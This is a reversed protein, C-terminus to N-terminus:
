GDMRGAIILVDSQNAHAPPTSINEQIPGGAAALLADFVPHLLYEEGPKTTVSIGSTEVDAWSATLPVNAVDWGARHFCDKLERAMEACDTNQHSLITVSHQGLEALNSALRMKKADPIAGGLFYVMSREAHRFM